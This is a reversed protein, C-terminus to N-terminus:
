ALAPRHGRARWLAAGVLGLAVAAGGAYARRNRAIHAAAAIANRRATEVRDSEEAIAVLRPKLGQPPEFSVSRLAKLGGALASYREMEARCGACSSLHRRVAPPLDSERAYAPLIERVEDCKM